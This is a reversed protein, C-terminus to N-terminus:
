ANPDEEEVWGLMFRVALGEPHQQLAEEIVRRTWEVAKDEDANTNIRISMGLDTRDSPFAPPRVARRRLKRIADLAANAQDAPDEQDFTRDIEGALEELIDDTFDSCSYTM